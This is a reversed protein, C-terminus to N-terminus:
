RQSTVTVHCIDVGSVAANHRKDNFNIRLIKFPFDFHFKKKKVAISYLCLMRILIADAYYSILLLIAGM